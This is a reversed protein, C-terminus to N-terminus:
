RLKRPWLDRCNEGKPLGGVNELAMDLSLSGSSIADIEIVDREGLKM